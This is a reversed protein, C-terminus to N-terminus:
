NIEDNTESWVLNTNSDYQAFLAIPIIEQYTKKDLNHLLLFIFTELCDVANQIDVNTFEFVGLYLIDTVFELKNNIKDIANDISEALVVIIAKEKRKKTLSNDIVYLNNKSKYIADLRSNIRDLNQNTETM